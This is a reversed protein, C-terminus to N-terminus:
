GHVFRKERSCEAAAANKRRSLVVGVGSWAFQAETEVEAGVVGKELRFIGERFVGGDGISEAAFESERHIVSKCGSEADSGFDFQGEVGALDM